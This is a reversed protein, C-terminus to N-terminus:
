RNWPGRRCPCARPPAPARRRAAPRPRRGVGVVHRRARRARSAGRGSRPPASAARVHHADVVDLLGHDRRGRPRRELGRLRTNTSSRTSVIFSSTALRISFVSSSGAGSRGGSGASRRARARARSPRTASGARASRGAAPRGAPRPRELRVPDLGRAGRAQARSASPLASARASGRTARLALRQAGLDLREHRRREGAFLGSRVLGPSGSSSRASPRRAAASSRPPRPARARSSSSGFPRSRRASSRSSSSAAFRSPLRARVSTSSRPSSSAASANRSRTQTASPASSATSAM